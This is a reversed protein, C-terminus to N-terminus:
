KNKSHYNKYNHEQILNQINNILMNSLTKMDENSLDEHRQYPHAGDNGVWSILDSLWDSDQLNLLKIRAPFSKKQLSTASKDEFNILYDWVLQEIAKRYGLKLLDELNQKEAMKLQSHLKIFQPSCSIIESSLDVNEYSYEPQIKDANHTSIGARHSTLNNLEYLQLFHQKCKNCELIISFSRNNDEIGSCNLYKPSQALECYPCEEPLNIKVFISDNISENNLTKFVKIKVNSM